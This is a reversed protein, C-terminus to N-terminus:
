DTCVHLYVNLGQIRETLQSKGSAHDCVCVCVSPYVCDCARERECLRFFDMMM